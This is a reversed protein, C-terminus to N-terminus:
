KIQNWCLQNDKKIVTKIKRGILTNFDKALIEGTGPRKIGINKETLTDNTKISKIAVVSGYAFKITPAEEKIISKFGGRSQFIIRSGEILHKLDKPNMSINIDPGSLSKSYTFHRELISAGISVAGLCPYNSLSHDSLGTVADPFHKQLQTISGLRILHYPTPYVSTCHLLAFPVNNKRIIEVSKSISKLDNMGTSLIIPKGFKAIHEVLPYNNCEGSGIKFASVGMDFLRNAAAKSFPTSLFILGKQEAYKKIRLESNKSLSCKNIIDWITEKSNGPIVSNKIMEENIIHTQLKVCECGTKAAADIMKLAKVEDGNHNIGIEAIVLPPHNIGVKRNGISFEPILSHNM